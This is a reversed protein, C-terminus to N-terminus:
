DCSQDWTGHMTNFEINNTTMPGPGLIKRIEALKKGHHDREERILALHANLEGIKARMQKKRM